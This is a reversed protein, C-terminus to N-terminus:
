DLFFASDKALIRDIFYVVFTKTHVIKLVKTTLLVNLKYMKVHGIQLDLM